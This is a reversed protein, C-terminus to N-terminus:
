FLVDFDQRPLFPLAAVVAVSSSNRFIMGAQMSAAYVYRAQWKRYNFIFMNAGAPISDAPLKRNKRGDFVVFDAEALPAPVAHPMAFFVANRVAKNDCGVFAVKTPKLRVAVRFLTRLDGKPIELYSYYAYVKPLCLVETIFRYAFPSHVGFGHSHRWRRYALSINLFNRM